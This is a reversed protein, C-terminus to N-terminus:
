MPNSFPSSTEVTDDEEEPILQPPPCDPQVLHVPSPPEASPPISQYHLEKSQEFRQKLDILPASARLVFSRVYHLFVVQAGRADDYSYIFTLLTTLEWRLPLGCGFFSVLHLPLITMCACLFFLLWRESHTKCIHTQGLTNQLPNFLALTACIPIAWFPSLFM